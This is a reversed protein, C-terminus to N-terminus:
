NMDILYDQAILQQNNLHQKQKSAKRPRELEYSNLKLDLRRGTARFDETGTLEALMEVIPIM